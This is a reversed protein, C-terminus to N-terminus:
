RPQVFSDNSSGQHFFFAKQVDLIPKKNTKKSRKNKTAMKILTLTTESNKCTNTFPKPYNINNASSSFVSKRETTSSNSTITQINFITTM